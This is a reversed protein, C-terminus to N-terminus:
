KSPALNDLRVLDRCYRCTIGRCRHGCYPCRKRPSGSSGTSRRVTM